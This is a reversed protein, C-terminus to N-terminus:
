SPRDNRPRGAAEPGLAALAQLVLSWASETATDRGQRARLRAQAAIHRADGGHKRLLAEALHRVEPEIAM